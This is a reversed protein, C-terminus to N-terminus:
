YYWYHYNISDMSSFSIQFNYVNIYQLWLNAQSAKKCEVTVELWFDDPDREMVGWAINETSTDNEGWFEQETAQFKYKTSNQEYEAGLTDVTFSFDIPYLIKGLQFQFFTSNGPTIYEDDEPSLNKKNNVVNQREGPLLQELTTGSVNIVKEKEVEGAVIKGSVIGTKSNWKPDKCAELLTITKEGDGLVSDKSYNGYLEAIFTTPLDGKIVSANEDLGSAVAWQEKNTFHNYSSLLRGDRAIPELDNLEVLILSDLEGVYIRCNLKRTFGLYSITISDNENLFYYNKNPTLSGYDDYISGYELGCDTVYGVGVEEIWIKTNKNLVLNQKLEYYEPSNNPTINYCNVVFDPTHAYPWYAVFQVTGEGKYVRQGNEDDFPIYKISSNGAPKATWVKYPAEQFWLDGMEKGNLWKKLERLQVETLSDFAFSINFDRQKHTTGFYYMGDGGPVEATKDTLTPTLNENYRDSDSTRYIHFDDWSHKGNFSFALFDMGQAEQSPVKVISEAM